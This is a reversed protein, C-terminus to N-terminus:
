DAGISKQQKGQVECGGGGGPGVKNVTYMVANSCPQSSCCCCSFCCTCCWCCGKCCCCASVDCTVSVVAPTGELPGPYLGQDTVYASGTDVDGVDLLSTYLVTGDSLVIFSTSSGSFVLNKNGYLTSDDDSAGVNGIVEGVKTCNDVTIDFTRQLLTLYIISVENLDAGTVNVTM